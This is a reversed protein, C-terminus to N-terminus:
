NQLAWELEDISCKYITTQMDPSWNQLIQPAIKFYKTNQGKHPRKSRLSRLFWFYSPVHTKAEM